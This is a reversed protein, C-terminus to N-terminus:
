IIIAHIAATDAHNCSFIFFKMPRICHSSGSCGTSYGTSIFLKNDSVIPTAVNADLETKWEHRWYERGDKPSVSV